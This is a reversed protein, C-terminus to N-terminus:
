NLMLHNHCPMVSLKKPRYISFALWTVGAKILPSIPSIAWGTRTTHKLIFSVNSYIPRTNISKGQTQTIIKKKPRIAVINAKEMLSATKHLGITHGRGNLEAQIRRKGYSNRSEHSFSNIMTILNIDILNPPMLKYYYSSMSVNFVRYLETVSYKKHAKKM